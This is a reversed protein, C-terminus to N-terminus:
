RSPGVVGEIGETITTLATLDVWAPNALDYPGDSRSYRMVIEGEATIAVTSDFLGMNVVPGAGRYRVQGVHRIAKSATRDRWIGKSLTVTALTMHPYGTAPMHELFASRAQLFRDWMVAYAAAHAMEQQNAATQARRALEREVQGPAPPGPKAGSPPPPLHDNNPM